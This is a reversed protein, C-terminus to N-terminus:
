QLPVYKGSYAEPRKPCGADHNYQCDACEERSPLLIHPNKAKVAVDISEMKALHFTKEKELEKKSFKVRWVTGVGTLLELVSLWGWDSGLYICELRLQELWKIPIDEVSRIILVSSHKFELPHRISDVMVGRGSIDEIIEVVDPHGVSPGFNVTVEKHKFPLEFESHLDQGINFRVLTKRSWVEKFGLIRCYAKLPCYLGDTLHPEKRDRQDMSHYLNNLEKTKELDLSIRM